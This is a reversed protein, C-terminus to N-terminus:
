SPWFEGLTTTCLLFFLIIKHVQLKLLKLKLFKAFYLTQFQRLIVCPRQFM